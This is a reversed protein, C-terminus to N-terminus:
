PGEMEVATVYFRYYNRPKIEPRDHASEYVRALEHLVADLGHDIVFDGPADLYVTTIKAARERPM